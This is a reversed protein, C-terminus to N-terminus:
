IQDNLKNKWLAREREAIDEQVETQDDRDESKHQCPCQSLPQLTGNRM